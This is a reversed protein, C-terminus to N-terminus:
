VAELFKALGAKDAAETVLAPYRGGLQNGRKIAERLVEQKEREFLGSQTLRGLCFDLRRKALRLDTLEVLGPLRFRARGIEAIVLELASVQRRLAEPRGLFAMAAETGGARYAQILAEGATVDQPTRSPKTTTLAAVEAEVQALDRRLRALDAQAQAELANMPQCAQAYAAEREDYALYQNM